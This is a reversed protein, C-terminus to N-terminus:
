TPPADSLRGHETFVVRVARRPLTALAGYVFPTYQHCHLVNVAHRAALRRLRWAVRLDFGPRRGVVDVPIHNARLETAWDGARDLCYVRTRLTHSCRRALDLVLKETGGPDLSLVIHAVHIPM